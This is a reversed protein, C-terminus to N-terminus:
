CYSVIISLYRLGVIHYNEIDRSSGFHTVFSLCGSRLIYSFVVVNKKRYSCCCFAFAYAFSQRVNERYIKLLRDRM